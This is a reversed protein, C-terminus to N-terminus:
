LTGTQEPVRLRKAARSASTGDLVERLVRSFNAPHIGHMRAVDRTAYGSVFDDVLVADRVRVKNLDVCALLNRMANEHEQARKRSGDGLKQLTSASRKAGLNVARGANALNIYHQPDRRVRELARQSMKMRAEPSPVRGTHVVSLKLRTAESTKRGKLSASIRKNREEPAKYGVPGTQGGSLINLDSEGVARYNHIFRIEQVYYDDGTYLIRFRINTEDHKRIWRSVPADRGSRTQSLHGNFRVRSGQVTAGVYRVGLEPHCICHLGYVEGKKPLM